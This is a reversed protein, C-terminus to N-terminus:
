KTQKKQNIMIDRMRTLKTGLLMRFDMQDNIMVCESQQFETDKDIIWNDANIVM